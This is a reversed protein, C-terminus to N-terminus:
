RAGHCVSFAAKKVPIKGGERCKQMMDFVKRTSKGNVTGGCSTAKRELVPKSEKGRRSGGMERENM